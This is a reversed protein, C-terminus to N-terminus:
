EFVRTQIDPQVRANLETRRPLSEQLGWYSSICLARADEGDLVHNAFASQGQPPM